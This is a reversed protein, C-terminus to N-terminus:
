RAPHLPVNEKYHGVPGEEMQEDMELRLTELNIGMRQLVKAAECDISILGLLLHDTGVFNHGFRDAERRAQSLIWQARRLIAKVKMQDM